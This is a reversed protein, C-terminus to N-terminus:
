RFVILEYRPRTVRGSPFTITSQLYFTGSETFTDAPLSLVAGEVTGSSHAEITNSNAVSQLEWSISEAEIVIGNETFSYALSLTEGILIERFREIAQLSLGEQTTHLEAM